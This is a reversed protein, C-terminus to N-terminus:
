SSSNKRNLFGALRQQSEPSFRVLVAALQEMFFGHEDSMGKSRAPVHIALYNSFDHNTAIQKAIALAQEEVDIGDACYHILGTSQAEQADMKRGTLLLETVRDYGIIGSVSVTAGGGVFVGRQAEPLQFFATKDAVRVHTSAALELGGGIVAGKLASIVPRTGYRIRHMTKEWGRAGEMSRVLNIGEGQGKMGLDLGASFDDGTTSLVIVKVSEDFSEIAADIDALMDYNIANKKEPRDIRIIGVSASIEVQIKQDNIM